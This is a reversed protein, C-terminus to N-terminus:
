RFRCHPFYGRSVTSEAIAAIEGVAAPMESPIPVGLAALDPHLQEAEACLARIVMLANRPTIEAGLVPLAADLEPELPRNAAPVHPEPGDPEHLLRWLSIYANTMLEILQSARRTEGRGAHKGAIPAMAWFFLLREEARDRRQEPTLAPRPAVPVGARDFLVYSHAPRVAASVPGINWDVEVPGEFWVLQFRAGPQSDSQAFEGQ